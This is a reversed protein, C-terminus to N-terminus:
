AKSIYFNSPFFASSTSIIYQKRKTQQNYTVRVHTQGYLHPIHCVTLKVDNFFYFIYFCKTFYDCCVIKNYQRLIFSADRAPPCPKTRQQTSCAESIYFVLTARQCFSHTTECIFSMWVLYILCFFLLFYLHFEFSVFRTM